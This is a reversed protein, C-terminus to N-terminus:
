DKDAGIRRRSLLEKSGRDLDGPFL